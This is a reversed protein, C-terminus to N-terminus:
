QGDRLTYLQNLNDAHIIFNGWLPKIIPVLLNRAVYSKITEPQGNAFVAGPSIMATLFGLLLLIRHRRKFMLSEKERIM